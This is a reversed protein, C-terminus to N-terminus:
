SYFKKTEERKNRIDLYQVTGLSYIVITKIETGLLDLKVFTFLYHPLNGRTTIWFQMGSM